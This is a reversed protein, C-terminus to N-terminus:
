GGSRVGKTEYCYLFIGVIHTIGLADCMIEFARVFRWSNQLLQSPDLNLFILLDPEFNTFPIGVRLTDLLDKYFYFIENPFRPPYYLCVKESITCPELIVDCEEGINLIYLGRFMYIYDQGLCLSDYKLVTPSFSARSPEM